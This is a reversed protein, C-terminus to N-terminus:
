KLRMRNKKADFEVILPKNDLRIFQFWLIRRKSCYSFGDTIEKSNGNKFCNISRTMCAEPQEFPDKVTGPEYDNPDVGDEAEISICNEPCPTTDIEEISIFTYDSNMASKNYECTKKLSLARNKHLIAGNSGVRGLYMKGDTSTLKFVVDNMTYPKTVAPRFIFSGCCPNVFSEYEAAETIRCLVHQWVSDKPHRYFVTDIVGPIPVLHIRAKQNSYITGRIKWEYLYRSDWQKQYASDKQMSTFASQVDKESRPTKISDDSFSFFPIATALFIGIVSGIRSSINEHIM